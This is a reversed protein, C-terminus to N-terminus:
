EVYLFESCNLLVWCATALGNERVLPATTSLEDATPERALTIRWANRLQAAVDDGAELRVREALREAQRMVFTDNM